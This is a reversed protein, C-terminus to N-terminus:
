TYIQVEAARCGPVEAGRVAAGRCRQVEAARCRQLEAGRCSQVKAGRSHLVASRCRHMEAGGLEEETAIEGTAALLLPPGALFARGRGKVGIVYDSLGPMYAGGATSSGHLISIVPIGAKSLKALSGFLRGGESFGEVTYNM